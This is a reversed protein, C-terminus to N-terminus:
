PEACGFGFYKLGPKGAEQLGMMKGAMNKGNLQPRRPESCRLSLAFDDHAFHHSLVQFRAACCKSFIFRVVFDQVAAAL